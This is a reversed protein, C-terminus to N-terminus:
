REIAEHRDIEGEEILKNIHSVEKRLAESRLADKCVIKGAEKGRLMKVSWKGNIFEVESARRISVENAEILPQLRDDYLGLIGESGIRFVKGTGKM